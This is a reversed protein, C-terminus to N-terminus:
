ILIKLEHTKEGRIDCNLMAVILIWSTKVYAVPEDGVSDEENRVKIM